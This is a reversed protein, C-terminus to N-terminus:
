SSGMGVRSLAHCPLGAALEAPRRPAAALGPAALARVYQPSPARWVHWAEPELIHIAFSSTSIIIQCAIISKRASLMEEM